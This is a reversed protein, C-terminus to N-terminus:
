KPNIFEVGMTIIQWMIGYLFTDFGRPSELKRGEQKVIFNMDNGVKSPGFFHGSSLKNGSCTVNQFKVLELFLWNFHQEVFIICPTQM